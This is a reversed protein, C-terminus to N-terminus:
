PTGWNTLRRPPRVNAIALRTAVEDERHLHCLPRRREARNRTWAPLGCHRCEGALGSDEGLVLPDPGGSLALSLPAFAEAVREMAEVWQDSAEVVQVVSDFWLDPRPLDRDRITFERFGPTAPGAVSHLVLPSIGLPWRAGGAEVLDWYDEALPDLQRESPSSPFPPRRAVLGEEDRVETMYLRCPQCFWGDELDLHLSTCRVCGDDIVPGVDSYHEMSRQTPSALVDLVAHTARTIVDAPLHLDDIGELISDYTTTM